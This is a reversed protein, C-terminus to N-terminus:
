GGGGGWGKKSVRKGNESNEFFVMTASRSDVGLSTIRQEFEVPTQYGLASHLRQQNYYREIFEEVNARMHDLDHYRNAYIEERKLTKM